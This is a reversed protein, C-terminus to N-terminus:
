PHWDAGIPNSAHCFTTGQLLWQLNKCVYATQVKRGDVVCVSQETIPEAKCGLKKAVEQDIFNHTNGTDILVQLPRKENYGTVRLTQYGTVGTYAQLSITMFEHTADQLEQEQILEVEKVREEEEVVDILYLQKKAKCVNGMTYKEDYFFCLGKARKENMEVSTLRRGGTVINPHNNKNEGVDITKKFTPNSM